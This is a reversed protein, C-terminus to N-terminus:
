VGFEKRLEAIREVSTGSDRVEWEDLAEKLAARLNHEYVFTDGGCTECKMCDPGCPKVFQPWENATRLRMERRALTVALSNPEARTRVHAWLTRSEEDSMQCEALRRLAERAADADDNQGM